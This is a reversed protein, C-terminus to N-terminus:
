DVEDIVEGTHRNGGRASDDSQPSRNRPSGRSRDWRSHRRGHPSRARVAAKSDKMNRFIHLAEAVAASRHVDKLDAHGFVTALSVRSRSARCTPPPLQLPLLLLPPPAQHAPAFTPMCL